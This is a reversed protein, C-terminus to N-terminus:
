LAESFGELVLELGSGLLLPHKVTGEHEAAMDVVGGNTFPSLGPLLAADRDAVVLLFGFKGADFRLHWFIAFDVALDHLLHHLPYVTSELGVEAPHLRALRRSVGAEVSAVAVVGEGVRLHTLM